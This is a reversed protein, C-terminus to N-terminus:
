RDPYILGSYNLREIYSLPKPTRDSGGGAKPDQHGGPNSPIDPGRKNELPLVGVRKVSLPRLYLIGKGM